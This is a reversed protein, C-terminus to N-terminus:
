WHTAVKGFPEEITDCGNLTVTCHLNGHCHM